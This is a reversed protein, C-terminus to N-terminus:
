SLLAGHWTVMVLFRVHFKNPRTRYNSFVPTLFNSLFYFLIICSVFYYHCNFVLLCMILVRFSHFLYHLILLHRSQARTTTQQQQEVQRQKVWKLQWTIQETADHLWFRGIYPV